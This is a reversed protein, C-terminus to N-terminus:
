ACRFSYGHEYWTVTGGPSTVFRHHEGKATTITTLYGTSWDRFESQVTVVDNIMVSETEPCQFTQEVPTEYIIWSWILKDSWDVTESATFKVTRGSAVSHLIEGHYSHTCTRNAASYTVKARRSVIGIGSQRQGSEGVMMEGLGSPRVPNFRLNNRPRPSAVEPRDNIQREEM